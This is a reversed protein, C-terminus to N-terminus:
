MPWWTMWAEKSWGDFLWELVHKKPRAAPEREAHERYVWSQLDAFLSDVLDPYGPSRRAFLLGAVGSRPDIWCYAKAPAACTLSGARPGGDVAGASVMFGLSWKCPTSPYLKIEPYFNVENPARVSSLRLSKPVTLAGIQNRDVLDLSTGSLLAADRRLVAQVFSFYDQPTSYFPTEGPTSALGRWGGAVRRRSNYEVYFGTDRMGLTEFVARRLYEAVPMGTVREILVGVLGLDGSHHWRTGPDFLLPMAAIRESLDQWGEPRLMADGWSGGNMGSTHSLLTRLTLARRVPRLVPNGTRDFGALRHPARMGPIVGGIPEDLDLRGSDVLRLAAVTMIPRVLWSIEFITDLGVRATGERCSAGYAGTYTDCGPTSAMAVVGSVRGSSVADELLGDVSEMGATIVTASQWVTSMRNVVPRM